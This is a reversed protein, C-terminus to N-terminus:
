MAGYSHARPARAPKRLRPSFRSAHNKCSETSGGLMSVVLLRSQDVGGMLQAQVLLGGERMTQLLRDLQQLHRREFEIVFDALCQDLFREQLFVFFSGRREGGH